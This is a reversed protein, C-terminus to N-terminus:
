WMEWFHGQLSCGSCSISDADKRLTGRVNKEREPEKEVPIHRVIRREVHTIVWTRLRYTWRDLQDDFRCVGPVKKQLHFVGAFSAVSDLVFVAALAWIIIKVALKPLLEFLVIFFENGFRLGLFGLVGWLVSYYLCIYGDFNWRLNSYDWWKRHNMRELLKGTVWELFTAQLACGLFLFVPRERLDGLTLTMLIAAIGYVACLPGTFFGRNVFKKKKGSAAATEVLWGLFSYIFFLWLMEYGTYKM